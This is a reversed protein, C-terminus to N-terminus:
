DADTEIGDWLQALPILQGTQVEHLAQRLSARIDDISDDDEEVATELPAESVRVIVEVRSQSPLNIPADLCLHGQDDIIGTVKIAKM